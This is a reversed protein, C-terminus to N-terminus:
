DASYNPSSNGSVCYLQNGKILVTVATTGAVEDRMQEDKMMTNDFELFGQFNLTKILVSCQM